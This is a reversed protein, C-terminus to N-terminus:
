PPRRQQSGCPHLPGRPELPDSHYCSPVCLETWSRRRHFWPCQSFWSFHIVKSSKPNIKVGQDLRRRHLQASHQLDPTGCRWYLGPWAPVQTCNTPWQKCLDCPKSLSRIITPSPSRRIGPGPCPRSGPHLPQRPWAHCHCAFLPHGAVNCKLLM